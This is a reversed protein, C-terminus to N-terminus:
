NVLTGWFLGCFPMQQDFMFLEQNGQLVKKLSWLNSNRVPLGPDPGGWHQTRHSLWELQHTSDGRPFNPPYYKYPRHYGGKVRCGGSTALSSDAAQPGIAGPREGFILTGLTSPPYEWPDYTTQLGPSRLDRNPPNDLKLPHVITIFWNSLSLPIIRWTLLHTWSLAMSDNYLQISKHSNPPVRKESLRMYEM